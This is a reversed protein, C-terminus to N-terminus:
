HNRLWLQESLHDSVINEKEKIATKVGLTVATSSAYTDANYSFTLSTISTGLLKMGPIRASQQSTELLRYVDTGVVYIVAYDYTNPVDDGSITTSPIEIVLSSPTSNYLTGSFDHSELIADAPLVLSEAGRMVTNVSGTSQISAEQYGSLNYFNYFLVSLALMITASLAVVVLMEILTFGTKKNTITPIM